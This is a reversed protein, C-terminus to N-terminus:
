GPVVQFIPFQSAKAEFDELEPQAPVDMYRRSFAEREHYAKVVEPREGTMELLRVRRIQRGSRLEAVPHERVNRVWGVEGYPSVLYEVGDSVIPAVPVARVRGSRRGTTTLEEVRGAVGIRAALIALSNFFKPARYEKAM